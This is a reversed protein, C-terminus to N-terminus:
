VCQRPLARQVDHGSFAHSFLAPAWSAGGDRHVADHDYREPVHEGNLLPASRLCQRPHKGCRSSQVQRGWWFLASAPASQSLGMETPVATCPVEPGPWTSQQRERAFLLTLHLPIFSRVASDMMKIQAEAHAWACDGTAGEDDGANGPAMASRSGSSAN